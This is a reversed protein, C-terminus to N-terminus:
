KETSACACQGRLFGNKSNKFAGGCFREVKVPKLDVGNSEEGKMSSYLSFITLLPTVGNLEQFPPKM